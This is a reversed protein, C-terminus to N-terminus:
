GLLNHNCQWISRVFLRTTCRPNRLQMKSCSLLEQGHILYSFLADRVHLHKTDRVMDRAPVASRCIASTLSPLEVSDRARRSFLANSRTTLRLCPPKNAGLSYSPVCIITSFSGTALLFWQSVVLEIGRGPFLLAKQSGMAFPLFRGEQGGCAVPICLILGGIQGKLGASQRSAFRWDCHKSIRFCTYLFLGGTNITV